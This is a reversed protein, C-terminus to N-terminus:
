LKWKRGPGGAPVQRERPPHSTGDQHNELRNTQRVEIAADTEIEKSEASSPKNSKFENAGSVPAELFNSLM